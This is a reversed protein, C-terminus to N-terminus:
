TVDDRVLLHTQRKWNSSSKELATMRLDSDWPVWSWMKSEWIQSEGLRSSWTGSNIDGLFLTAGNYGWPVPNGTRHQRLDKNNLGPTAGLSFVAEEMTAHQNVEASIHKSCQQTPVLAGSFVSFVVRRNKHANPGATIHKLLGNGLLSSNRRELTFANCLVRWINLNIPGMGKRARERISRIM